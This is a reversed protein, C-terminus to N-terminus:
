MLFIFVTMFVNLTATSTAVSALVGVATDERSNGDVLVLVCSSSLTRGTRNGVTANTERQNDHNIWM